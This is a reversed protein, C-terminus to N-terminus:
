GALMTRAARLRDRLRDLAEAIRRTERRIREGDAQRVAEALGPLPQGDYLSYVNWGYVVHRYWRREPPESEDLLAQEARALADNLTAAEPPVRGADLAADLTRELAEAEQRVAAARERLAALDPAAPTASAEPTWAQAAELFADIRSAYHAYRLPLVPSGALRTVTAGLLRALVEGRRFGPDAVKEFYRRTDHNSHYTGYSGPFDFELSLTPLGLHDQFAVFDAGSGLAALEGPLTQGTVDRVVEAVFARLSPVGGADLAGDLYLDTNV